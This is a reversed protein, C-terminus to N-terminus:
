AVELTTPPDIPREALKGPLLGDFQQHIDFLSGHLLLVETGSSDHIEYHM